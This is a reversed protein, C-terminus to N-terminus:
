DLWVWRTRVRKSSWHVTGLPLRGQEWTDPLFLGLSM